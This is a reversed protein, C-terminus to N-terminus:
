KHESMFIRMQINQQKRFSIGAEMDLNWRNRNLPTVVTIGTEWPIRASERYCRRNIPRQWEEPRAKCHSDPDREDEGILGLYWAWEEFTYRRPKAERVHGAVIRIESILLLHLDDGTPPIDLNNPPPPRQTTIAQPAYGRSSNPM